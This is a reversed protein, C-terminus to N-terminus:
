MIELNVVLLVLPLFGAFSGRTPMNRAQGPAFVGCFQGQDNNDFFGRKALRRM